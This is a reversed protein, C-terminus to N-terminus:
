RDHTAMRLRMGDRLRGGGTTRRATADPPQVRRRTGGERVSQLAVREGQRSRLRRTWWGASAILLVGHPMAEQAVIGFPEHVSPLVFVDARAFAAENRCRVLVSVLRIENTSSMQYM